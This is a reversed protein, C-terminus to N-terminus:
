RRKLLYGWWEDKQMSKEVVFDTDTLFQLLFAERREDLIGTLLLRGDTSTLRILDRKIQLLVGDIINAIVLEYNEEIQEIQHELVNVKSNNIQINEAATKRAMEDIETADVQSAGSFDCILALVGTGTGVDLVKKNQSLDKQQALFESAIQTTAHTGTGFAMGPDIRLVKKAEPPAELWSPVIWFDGALRFPRFHKKWGEMWDEHPKQRVEIECDPVLEHIQPILELPPESEFYAVLNVSEQEIIEPTYVADHQVFQLNQSVGQAGAEICLYSIEDEHASPVSNVLLQYYYKM